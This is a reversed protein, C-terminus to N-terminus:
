QNGGCARKWNKLFGLLEEPPILWLDANTPRFEKRVLIRLGKGDMASFADEDTLDDGLYAAVGDEGMESLVTMVADGKNKAPVRLELGGDFEHLVLDANQAIPLWNAMVKDRIEKIDAEGLGRWHLALCGPKQECLDQLGKSEAWVGAASLGRMPSEGIDAVEYRNDPFLRELGHAGWIEPIRSLGLLPIVEKAPRGTVLVVRCSSVRLIAGLIERVGPYPIAMDREIRFPALTGDYDLILACQRTASLRAFFLDLDVGSRLVKM